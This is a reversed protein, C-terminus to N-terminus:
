RCNMASDLDLELNSVLCAFGRSGCKSYFDCIKNAQTPYDIALIIKGDSKAQDLFQLVYATEEEDQLSDSEYWTSEKGLGDITRAYEERKYLEPSNQPFVMFNHNVEKGALKIEKVFEVMEDAASTQGREEYYEYADIIDLYVGNYGLDAIDKTRSLIITQWDEEWYKVKYNGEWDPNEEDIFSPNGVEWEPKWYERYNEAEGISLYSLIVKGSSKIDQLESRSLKSDDIDVVILDADLGKLNQYDADQLQYHFTKPKTLPISVKSEIVKVKQSQNAEQISKENIEIAKEPPCGGYSLVSLLLLIVLLKKM